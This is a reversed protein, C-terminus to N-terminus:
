IIERALSSILKTVAEGVMLGAKLLLGGSSKVTIRTSNVLVNKKAKTSVTHELDEQPVTM